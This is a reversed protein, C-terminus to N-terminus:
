GLAEYNEANADRVSVTPDEDDRRTGMTLIAGDPFQFRKKPTFDDITPQKKKEEM